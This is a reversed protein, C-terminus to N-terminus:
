CTGIHRAHNVYLKQTTYVELSGSNNWLGLYTTLSASSREASLYRLICHYGIVFPYEISEGTTAILSFLRAPENLGRIVRLFTRFRLLFWRTYGEPGAIIKSDYWKADLCVSACYREGATASRGTHNWWNRADGLVTVDGLIDLASM